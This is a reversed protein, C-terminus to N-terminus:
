VASAGSIIECLETTIKAQRARNYILALKDIMEGANKSANEMATMRASQEATAGNLYASYIVAGFYFEHLDDWVEYISPEFTYVDMAKSWEARDIGQAEKKTVTHVAATDYAVMSKFTNYSVKLREPNVDTIRDAIISATLFSWPVRTVQEFTRTYRDGFVRKLGAVGKGGICMYKATNGKGEEELIGAKCLKNVASNVGGCLGKDSTVAVFTIPGPKEERPLREFLNLVPRCFPLGTELKRTDQRMKAAAVMKMAKTIKQISKVSKIRIQIAKLTAANRVQVDITSPVLGRGVLRTLMTLLKGFDWSRAVGQAL